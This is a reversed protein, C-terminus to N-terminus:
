VFSTHDSEALNPNTALRLQDRVVLHREDPTFLVATPHDSM